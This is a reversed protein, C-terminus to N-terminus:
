EEEEEGLHREEYHANESMTTRVEITFELGSNASWYWHGYGGDNNYWDVSSRDLADNVLEEVADYLSMEKEYPEGREWYKTEPNFETPGPMYFIIPYGEIIQEGQPGEIYISDIQGSDGSGDFEVRVQTIGYLLFAAALRKENELSYNM